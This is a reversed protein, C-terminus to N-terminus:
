EIDLKHIREEEIEIEKFVIEDNEKKYKARIFVQIYENPYKRNIKVLNLPDLFWKTLAQQGEMHSGAILIVHSKKNKNYPNPTRSILGYCKGRIKRIDSEYPPEKTALFKIADRENDFGYILPWKKELMKAQLHRSTDNIGIVILNESICDNIENEWVAECSCKSEATRIRPSSFAWHMLLYLSNAEDTPISPEIYRNKIIDRCRGGIDNKRHTHIILVKDMLDFLCFKGGLNPSTVVKLEDGINRLEPHITLLVADSVIKLKEDINRLLYRGQFIHKLINILFSKLQHSFIGGLMGIVAIIVAIIVASKMNLFASLVFGVFGGITIAAVIVAAVWKSDTM